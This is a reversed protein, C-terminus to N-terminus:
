RTERENLLAEILKMLDDTLRVDSAEFDLIVNQVVESRSVADSPRAKRLDRKPAM